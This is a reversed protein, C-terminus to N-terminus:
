ACQWLFKGSCGDSALFVFGVGADGFNVYFPVSCSDLQLLLETYDPEPFEDRHPFGPTGGIKNGAVADLFTNIAEEELTCIIEEPILDPDEAATLSVTFECPEQVLLEEGEKSVMRYLSPGETLESTPVLPEGPQVIVANEGSESDWTPANPDDSIFLYVMLPETNGFIEEPVAVQGIFRMPKGTSSSIPWQPTTMWQPQGGFKTVLERIPQSAEVFEISLRPVM